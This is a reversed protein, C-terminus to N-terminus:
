MSSTPASHTLLARESRHPPRETILTGVAIDLGLVGRDPLRRVTLIAERLLLTLRDTVHRVCAPNRRHDPKRSRAFGRQQFGRVLGPRSRAFPHETRRQGALRRFTQRLAGPDSAACQGRPLVSPRLAAVTELGAIYKHDILGAHDGGALERPHDILDVRRTCFGNQDAIRHLKLRDLGPCGKPRNRLAHAIYLQLANAALPRVFPLALGRQVERAPARNLRQLRVRGPAGNAEM